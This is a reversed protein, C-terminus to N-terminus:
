PSGVRWNKSKTSTVCPLRVLQTTHRVPNIKWDPTARPQGAICSITSRIEHQKCTLPLRQFQGGKLMCCSWWRGVSLHILSRDMPFSDVHPFPPDHVMLLCASFPIIPHSGALASFAFRPLRMPAFTRISQKSISLSSACTLLFTGRNTKQGRQHIKPFSVRWATNKLDDTRERRPRKHAPM